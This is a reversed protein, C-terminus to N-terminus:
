EMGNVAGGGGGGRRGVNEAQVTELVADTGQAGGSSASTRARVRRQRRTWPLGTGTGGRGDSGWITGGLGCCDM